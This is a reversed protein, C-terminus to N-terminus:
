ILPLCVEIEIMVTMLDRVKSFTSDLLRHPTRKRKVHM